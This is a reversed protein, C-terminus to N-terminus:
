PEDSAREFFDIEVEQEAGNEDRERRERKQVVPAARDDGADGDWSRDDRREHEDPRHTIRQVIERHESEHKGDADHNVVGNYDQFVDVARHLFFAPATGLRRAVGCFFDGQGDHGRRKREDDDKQRQSEHFAADAHKERAVADGNRKRDHHRKENRERKRGHERRAEQSVRVIRLRALFLRVASRQHLPQRVIIEAHQLPAQLM